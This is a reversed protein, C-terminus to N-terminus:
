KGGAALKAADITTDVIGKAAGVQATATGKTLMPDLQALQLLRQIAPGAVAILQQMEAQVTPDPGQEPPQGAKTVQMQRNAAKAAVQMDMDDLEDWYQQLLIWAVPNESRMEFHKLTYQQLVKKAVPFNEMRSPYVPLGSTVSGDPNMTPEPGNEVITQIDAETKLQQAEDPLVSGPIMTSLAMDQNEPVAFWEAAAPNGATMADWMTKIADRLEDPSVPLDQSEDVTIEVNGSMAQWDVENNQFAGGRAKVVDHIKKVAGVRMLNQLCEIANQDACAQEDQVNEWYPKLTTAARDLQLQQGGLTEVDHQTGQGSMQRPIGIIVECFTMLLMPYGWLAPNIPLDFHQMIDMMPRPEGNIRMPVGIGTGAPVPKGSMKETDVRAADFFNLGTSARAAWDDLIWMVRNFRANFSVATSALANCYVGQNTYLACHSWEKVLVAARIDVVKDGIMTVKCGDPFAAEMRQAFAQDGRKWYSMPQMWVESYTPNMLSSDATMGGVASVADIRSLKEISANPTTSSEAGAQIEAYMAPFMRRAEGLDIETDKALIPTHALPRDGKAKPDCDIELPSHMSWKVGSRPIRKTGSQKLSKRNGEGAGYFSEQGMFSGCSPCEMGNESGPAAPTETGCNPCRFRAPQQIDMDEFTPQEDYGFMNGDIVPRTYRFYSGFLFLNEFATRIQKRVENKRRIIAIADISAKATVTDKLGPDANAPKIVTKPVARSMTGTFVNCFMLTIPNIWRELDTDEGSDQDQSRSWALVDYWCNQSTDWRICQVGKWYFVNEMWQRIRELRDQAWGTRYDTITDVLMKKDVESVNGTSFYAAMPSMTQPNQGSVSAIDQVNQGGNQGSQPGGGFGTFGPLGGLGAMSGM